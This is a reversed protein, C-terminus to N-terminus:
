TLTKVDPPIVDYRIENDPNDDPTIWCEEAKIVYGSDGFNNGVIGVFVDDPVNISFDSDAVRTFSSDDYVAMTVDFNGQATDLNVVYSQSGVEGIRASVTLDVEFKCGFEIFLEKRRTILGTNVGSFGQIANKYTALGEEDTGSETKCDSFSRDIKFVYEPGNDFALAGRCNNNVSTELDDFTSTKAPGNIYLDKLTFGFKNIVCKNMRLEISDSKCIANMYDAPNIESRAPLSDMDCVCGGAGCTAFTEDGAEGECRTVDNCTPAAATFSSCASLCVYDCTESMGVKRDFGEGETVVCEGEEFAPMFEIAESIVPEVTSDSPNKISFKIQTSKIDGRFILNSFSAYGSGPVFEMVTDGDLSPAAEGDEAMVPNYLEARVTYPDAVYGVTDMHEGNQNNVSLRIPNFLAQGLLQVTAPM